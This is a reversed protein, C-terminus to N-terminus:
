RMGNQRAQAQAKAQNALANNTKQSQKIRDLIENWLILRLNKREGIDNPLNAERDRNLYWELLGNTKLFRMIEAESNLGWKELDIIEKDHTGTKKLGEVITSETKREAESGSGSERANAMVWASDDKGIRADGAQISANIGKPLNNKALNVSRELFGIKHDQDQDKQATINEHARMDGRAANRDTLDATQRKDLGAMVALLSPHNPNIGSNLAAARLTEPEAVEGDQALRELYNQLFEGVRKQAGAHNLGGERLNAFREVQAQSMDQTGFTKVIEDYTPERGNMAEFNAAWERLVKGNKRDALYPDGLWFGMRSASRVRPTEPMVIQKEQIGPVGYRQNIKELVPTEGNYIAEFDAEFNRDQKPPEVLIRAPNWVVGNERPRDNGGNDPSSQSVGGITALTDQSQASLIAEAEKESINLRKALDMTANRNLMKVEQGVM